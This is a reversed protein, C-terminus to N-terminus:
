TSETKRRGYYMATGFGVLGGMLHSEWSVGSQVPLVGYILSWYFSLILVSIILSKFDKKFFGYFILFSAIGYILGSAGVHFSSRAFIWVLLGTVLYCTWFVRNAIGPNFFFLATGLFLLPLTNSTLHIVNGHIMPSTFVGILGLPVRPYIGFVSLDIHMFTELSFVAWMIFVMRSPVIISASISYSTM